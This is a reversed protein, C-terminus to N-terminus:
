TNTIRKGSGGTMNKDVVWYAICGIFPITLIVILWIIVMFGSKRTFLHYITYVIFFLYLLGIILLIALVAGSIELGDM